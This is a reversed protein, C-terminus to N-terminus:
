VQIEELSMELYYIEKNYRKSSKRKSSEESSSIPVRRSSEIISQEQANEIEKNKISYFNDISM